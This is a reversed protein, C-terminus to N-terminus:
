SGALCPLTGFSTVGGPTYFGSLYATKGAINFTGDWVFDRWLAYLFVSAFNM